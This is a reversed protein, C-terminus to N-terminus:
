VGEKSKLVHAAALLYSGLDRAEEYSLRLVMPWIELVAKDGLVSILGPLIEVTSDTYDFEAM